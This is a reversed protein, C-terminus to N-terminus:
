SERKKTIRIEYLGKSKIEAQIVEICDDSRKSTNQNGTALYDVSVGLYEAVVVVKSLTPEGGTIWHHITSKGIGIDSAMKSISIDREELLSSLRKGFKM